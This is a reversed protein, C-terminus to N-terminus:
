GAEAIHTYWELSQSPMFVKCLDDYNERYGFWRCMQMLVDYAKSSRAFYSVSLGSLTLGRSLKLGGIVITSLGDPYMDYDLVQPSKTNIALVKIKTASAWINELVDEFSEKVDFNTKFTRELKQISSNNLRNKKDGIINEISNKIEKLYDDVLISLSNQCFAFHSINIMM